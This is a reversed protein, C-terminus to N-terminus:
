RGERAHWAALAEPAAPVTWSSRVEVPGALWPARPRDWRQCACWLAIRHGSQSFRLGHQGDSM